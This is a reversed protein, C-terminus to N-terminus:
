ILLLLTCWISLTFTYLLIVYSVYDTKRRTDVSKHIKNLIFIVYSFLMHTIKCMLYDGFLIDMSNLACPGANIGGIYDKCSLVLRDELGLTILAIFRHTVHLQFYQMQTFIAALPLNNTYMKTTSSYNIIYIIKETAICM